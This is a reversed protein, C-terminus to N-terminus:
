AGAAFQESDLVLTVPGWNILEIDMAAGFIGTRVKGPYLAALDAAFRDFLLRAVDPQAAPHFSPRRGKRWDAYLTFQSVLLAEGGDAGYEGLALNLRADADPFIRLDLIKKLLGKWPPRDPLNQDDDVGFGVLALVGAGIHAVPEGAVVVRASKVRQLVIRM